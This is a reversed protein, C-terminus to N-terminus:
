ACALCIPFDLNKTISNNKEGKNNRNIDYLLFLENVKEECTTIENPINNSAVNPLSIKFKIVTSSILSPIKSIINILVVLLTFISNPLITIGMKPTNDIIHM